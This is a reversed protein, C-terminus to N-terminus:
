AWQLVLAQRSKASRSRPSLTALCTLSMDRVPWMKHHGWQYEHRLVCSESERLNYSIKGLSTLELLKGM